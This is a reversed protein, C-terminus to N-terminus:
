SHFNKGSEQLQQQLHRCLNQDTSYRYADTIMSLEKDNLPKEPAKPTFPQANISINSLVPASDTTRRDPKKGEELVTELPRGENRTSRLKVTKGKPRQTNFICDNIEDM